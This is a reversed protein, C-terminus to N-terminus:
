CLQWRSSAIASRRSTGLPRQERSGPKPIMTRRVARPRYTGSRLEEHLRRVNESLRKEFMEPTVYDVGAAKNKRATVRRAASHLTDERYVKDILSFWVGGKVGNELATPCRGCTPRRDTWVWPKTWTWRQRVPAEGAQTATPVAAPPKEPNDTMGCGGEQGGKSWAVVAIAATGSGAEESTHPSQSGCGKRRRRVGERTQPDRHKRPRAKWGNRGWGGDQGAGTTRQM